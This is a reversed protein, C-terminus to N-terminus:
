LPLAAFTEPAPMCEQLRRYGIVQVGLTQIYKRLDERLFTQYNAVRARWDPAIERLEPMDTSPHLIFHTIGPELASFAAKAQELCGDPRGLDLGTLHDLLPVGLSELQQAILVAQGAM